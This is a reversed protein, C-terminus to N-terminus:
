KGRYTKVLWWVIGYSLVTFLNFKWHLLFYTPLNILLGYGMVEGFWYLLEDYRDVTSEPSRELMYTHLIQLKSKVYGFPKRVTSIIYRHVFGYIFNVM